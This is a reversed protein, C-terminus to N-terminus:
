VSLLLKCLIFSFSFTMTCHLETHFKFVPSVTEKMKIYYM